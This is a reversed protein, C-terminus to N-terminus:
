EYNNMVTELMFREFCKKFEKEFVRDVWREGIGHYGSLPKDYEVGDKFVGYVQENIYEMDNHYVPTGYTNSVYKIEYGLAMLFKLRFDRDFLDIM